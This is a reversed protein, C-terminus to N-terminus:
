RCSASSCRWSASRAGRAAALGAPLAEAGRRRRAAPHDVAAHDAPRHRDRQARAGGLPLAARLLLARGAAPVPLLVRGPGEAAEPDAADGPRAPGVARGRAPPEGLGPLGLDRLRRGRGALGGAVPRGVLPRGAEPQRVGVHRGQPHRARGAGARAGVARHRRPRPRRGPRGRRRGDAPRARPHGRRAGGRGRVGLAVLRLDDAPRRHAPRRGGRDRRLGRGARLGPPTGACRLEDRRPGRDRAHDPGRGDGRAAVLRLHAGAPEARPRDDALRRRLDRLRHRLGAQARPDRRDERRHDDALGHGAHVPHDGDPHRHRRHRRGGRGHRDLREHGLQGADDPVAGDGPDHPRDGRRHRTVTDTSM